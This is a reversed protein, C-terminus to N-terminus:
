PPVVRLQEVLAVREEVVEDGVVQGLAVPEDHRDVPLRRRVVRREGDEHESGRRDNVSLMRAWRSVITTIPVTAITAM